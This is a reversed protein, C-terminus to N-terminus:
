EPNETKRAVATTALDAQDIRHLLSTMDAPPLIPGLPFAATLIQEARALATNGPDIARLAGAVLEFAMRLAMNEEARKADNDEMKKLRSELAEDLTEERKNLKDEWEQLGEARTKRADRQWGLAWAVGKGFAGLVLVLAAAMGAWEGTSPETM